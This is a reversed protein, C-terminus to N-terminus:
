RGREAETHVRDSSSARPAHIANRVDHATLLSELRTPAAAPADAPVSTLPMLMCLLGAVAFGRLSLRASRTGM